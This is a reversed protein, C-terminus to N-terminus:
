GFISSSTGIGMKEFVTNMVNSLMIKINELVNLLMGLFDRAETIGGAIDEGVEGPDEGLVGELVDGIVEDPIEIDAATAVTGFLFTFCLVVAMFLALYKNKM